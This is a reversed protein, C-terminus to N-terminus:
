FTIWKQLNKLENLHLNAFYEKLIRQIENTNRSIDGKEDRIKNIQIETKRKTSKVLPKNIENIKEYFCRETENIRKTEM